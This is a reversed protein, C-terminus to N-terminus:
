VINFVMINITYMIVHISHYIRRGVLNLGERWIVALLWGDKQKADQRKLKNKAKLTKLRYAQDFRWLSCHNSVSCEPQRSGQSALDQGHVFTCLPKVISLVWVSGLWVIAVGIDQIAAGWTMFWNGFRKRLMEQEKLWLFHQNRATRVAAEGTYGNCSYFFEACLDAFTPLYILFHVYIIFPDCDQFDELLPICCSTLKDSTLSDVTNAM